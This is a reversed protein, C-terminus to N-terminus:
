ARFCTRGLDYEHKAFVHDYKQLVAMFEEREEQTLNPSDVVPKDYM